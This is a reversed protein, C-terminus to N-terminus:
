HGFAVTQKAHSNKLLPSIKKQLWAFFFKKKTKVTAKKMLMVKIMLRQKQECRIAVLVIGECFLWRWM